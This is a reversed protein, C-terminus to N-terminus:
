MKAFDHRVMKKLGQYFPDRRRIKHSFATMKAQLYVPLQIIEKM